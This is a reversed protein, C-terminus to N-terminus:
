TIRLPDHFQIVKFYVTAMGKLGDLQNRLSFFIDLKKGSRINALKHITM